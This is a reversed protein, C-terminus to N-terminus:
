THIPPIDRLKERLEEKSLGERDTAASPDWFQRFYSGRQDTPYERWLLEAAMAVNVGLMYAEIFRQNTELLTITNPPIKDINPLFNDGPLELLPAYMPIDFEPYVMAERFVELNLAVIRLPVTIGDMTFAPITVTPDLGVVTADTLAALDVPPRPAPTGLTASTSLLRHTDTL